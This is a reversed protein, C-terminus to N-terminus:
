LIKLCWSPAVSAIFCPQDQGAKKKLQKQAMALFIHSVPVASNM